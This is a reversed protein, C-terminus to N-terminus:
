YGPHGRVRTSLFLCTCSGWLPPKLRNRVETHTPHLSDLASRYESAGASEALLRWFGHLTHSSVHSFDGDLDECASGLPAFGLPPAPPQRSLFGYPRLASGPPMFGSAPAHRVTQRKPEPNGALWCCTPQEWGFPKSEEQSTFGGFPSDWSRRRHSVFGARSELSYATMLTTLGQLRFRALPESSAALPGRIRAHATPLSLGHSSRIAAATPYTNSPSVRFSPSARLSSAASL